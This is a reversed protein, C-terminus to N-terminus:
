WDLSVWHRYMGGTHAVGITHSVSETRTIDMAPSVRQTHTHRLSVMQPRIVGKKNKKKDEEDEEEEYNYNKNKTIVMKHSHYGSHALSGWPPHYRNQSHYEHYWRPVAIGIARTINTTIGTTHSHYGNNTTGMTHTISRSRSRKHPLSVRKTLSLKNKHTIGKTRSHYGNRTLLVWQPHTIGM